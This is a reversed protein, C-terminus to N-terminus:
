KKCSKKVYNMLKVKVTWNPTQLFGLTNKEVVEAVKAISLM